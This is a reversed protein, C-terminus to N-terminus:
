ARVGSGEKLPWDNQFIMLVILILLLFSFYTGNNRARLTGLELILQAGGM